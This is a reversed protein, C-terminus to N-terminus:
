VGIRRGCAAIIGPLTEAGFGVLGAAIGELHQKERM